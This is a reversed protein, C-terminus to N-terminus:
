TTHGLTLQLPTDTSTPLIRLIKCQTCLIQVDVKGFLRMIVEKNGVFENDFRPWRNSAPLEVDFEDSISCSTAMAM